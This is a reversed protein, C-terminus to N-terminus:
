RGELQAAKEALAKLQYDIYTSVRAKDTSVTASRRIRVRRRNLSPNFHNILATEVTALLSLDSVEVWAIRVNVLTELEAHRHHQLWRRQLNVSRGIHHIVGSEGLCFYICPVSPLAARDCLAVSPLAALDLSTLDIM